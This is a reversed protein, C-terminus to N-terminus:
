VANKDCLHRILQVFRSLEDVNRDRYAIRLTAFYRNQHQVKSACGFVVGARLM